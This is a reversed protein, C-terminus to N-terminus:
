LGPGLVDNYSHQTRRSNHRVVRLLNLREHNAGPNRQSDEALHAVLSRTPQSAPQSAVAGSRWSAVVKGGPLRVWMAVQGCGVRWRAVEGGLCRAM